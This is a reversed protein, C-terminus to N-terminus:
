GFDRVGIVKMGVMVRGKGHGNRLAAHVGFWVKGDMRRTKALTSFPEQNKEATTQDICVMQCRRCSGLLDLESGTPADEPAGEYPVIHTTQDNKLTCILSSWHDELYPHTVTQTPQRNRGPREAIIINARFVSAHAAKGGKSSSKIIENLSNLSSRSIVLVPSENALHIPRPIAPSGHAIQQHKQLHTKAHRFSTAGSPHRALTCPTGLINSFFIAIAPASYIRPEISDNCVRYEGSTNSSENFVSPEHSLPVKISTPTNPPTPGYFSVRLHGNHLDISPRLLAMRPFRKQSLADHTSQHVLCWERDWALGESNIDWLMDPPIAWAGCSKIPYVTLTEIYFESSGTNDPCLDPADRISREVFFEKVFDVFSTVDQLTSMAGLSVRIMGTPKGAIIDDEGGCRHGVTFNRQLEWPALGLSSAVGAPNCHGGTRLHIGKINALKGIEAHGIWAGKSDRFNFTVIPGQTRSGNNLCPHSYFSCLERGNAHRLTSLGDYLTKSLFSVHSSVREMPGFLRLHADIAQDLAVISHIPLTGDELQEHLSNQKKIHWQEKGCAGREVTGGSFYKRRLLPAASANRVILAGIDPFGFIKYFSMVTFDPADSADSFDIPVTTALAAADFLTYIQSGKSDNRQRCNRPWANMLRRGSMNSQGPYALLRLTHDRGSTNADLEYFWRDVEDDSWFCRQGLSALERVGVLSTHSDRHYGYWFGEDNDRFGDAVLKIGATANAVFVVDFEDTSAKVFKLVKLRVEEARQSSSSSSM